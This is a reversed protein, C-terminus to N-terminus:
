FPLFDDMSLVGQKGPIWEAVLVAGLAFGTRSKAIHTMEIMDVACDYKVTHTGPYPDIRESSVPIIQDGAVGESWSHYGPNNSIIGEALTIATGSPSDKKQTHHIEHISVQYNQKDMLRALYANVKFFINVGISYNSAYFFAGNRLRCYENVEDKKSLWGTTGCVVPIRHDLCGKINGPSSEPTTFEIAVDFHDSGLRELKDHVDFAVTEHGRNHAIQEIAKGMKGYGIIAIKMVDFNLQLHLDQWKAL